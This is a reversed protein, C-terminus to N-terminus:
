QVTATLGSPATPKSSQAGFQYAGIDWTTLRPAHTIDSCLAGLSSVCLTSLSLGTSVTGNSSATPAYQNSKTYGQTAAVSPTMTVNNNSRLSSVALEISVPSLSTIWHNNFYNVAGITNGAREVRLCFVGNSCDVTNNYINAVTSTNVTCANVGTDVLIDAGAGSNNWMVNNYFNTNPCMGVVQGLLNDHIVNNYVSGAGGAWTQQIVNTHIANTYPSVTSQDSINSFESDHVSGYGNLGQAIHHCKSNKVEVMNAFCSGFPVPQGAQDSIEMNDATTYRGAIGGACNSFGANLGAPTSIWDHFYGNKVISGLVNSSFYIGCDYGVDPGSHGGQIFQGKIEFNDFTVYTGDVWIVNRGNLPGAATPLQGNLNFVPRSFSSGSFWNLDVGYYDYASSTGGQKVNMGFCAAPWAVGGKFIFRDGTAHTYAPTSGTGSCAASAQMYPHTKWPTSQSTGNNGNSGGAYDIYFTRGSQAVAPLGGIGMLITILAAIFYIRRLL